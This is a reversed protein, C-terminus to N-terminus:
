KGFYVSLEYEGTFVDYKIEAQEFRLRKELEWYDKADQLDKLLQEFSLFKGKMYHGGM